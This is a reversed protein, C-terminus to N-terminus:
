LKTKNYQLTYSDPYEALGQEIYKRAKEKIGKRLYFNTILEFCEQRGWSPSYSNNASQIPLSLAKLLSQEVKVGGGYVEPTYYDNNALVYYARLNNEDLKLAKDIYKAAHESAHIIEPFSLFQCSFSYLMSLLAYDESNKTEISELTKIGKNLEENASKRDSSKLQIISNYYYAYGQWYLFMCNKSNGYSIAMEDLLAVLESNNQVVFSNTFATMIRDQINRRPQEDPENSIFVMDTVSSSLVPYPQIFFLMLIILARM